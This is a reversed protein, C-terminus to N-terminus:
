TTRVRPDAVAYLVDAAANVVIFLVAVFLVGGQVVPYDRVTVADVILRGVGPIAFVSEVLVTGALLGGFRLGVISIIPMLANRLVHRVVVARWTVGRARAARVFEKGWEELMAARTMRAVFGASQLGLTAIPLVYHRPTAVGISPLWGLWLSLTLMLMLGLWYGPTSVSLLSLTMTLGDSLRHPSMSAVIGAALGLLTALLTAGLAIVLTHPFREAIEQAVPAGTRISRGLDLTAVRQVFRGFQVPLPRDLGLDHRVRDVTEPSAELGAMLLAPDGPALHIMLFVALTVGVLVPVTDALRQVVLRTM